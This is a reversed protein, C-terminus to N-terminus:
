EETYISISETFQGCNLNECNKSITKERICQILKEDDVSLFTPTLSTDNDSFSVLIISTDNTLFKLKLFRWFYEEIMFRARKAVLSVVKSGTCKLNNHM